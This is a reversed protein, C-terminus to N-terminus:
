QQLFQKIERIGIENLESLEALQKELQSFEEKSYELDAVKKFVQELGSNGSASKLIHCSEQWYKYDKDKTSQALQELYIASQEVYLNITELFVDNGLADRYQEILAKNLIPM